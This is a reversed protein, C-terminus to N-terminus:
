IRQYIERRHGVDVVMILASERDISLIARYNGARLAFYDVGKLRKAATWPDDSAKELRRSMHERTLRDLRYFRKEASESFIIKYRM